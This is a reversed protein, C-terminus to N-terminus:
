EAHPMEHECSDMGSRMKGMGGRGGLGKGERSADKHPMGEGPMGEPRMGRGGGIGLGPRELGLEEALGKATEWDKGEKAEHLRVYTDFNERTIKEALDPVPELTIVAAYWADYDGSELADHIADRTEQMAAMQSERQRNREVMENFQEETLEAFRGSQGQEEIASVFADYDGTELATKAADNDYLMGGGRGKGGFPSAFAGVAIIGVLLVALIGLIPAKKM